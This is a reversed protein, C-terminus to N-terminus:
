TVSTLRRSCVSARWSAPCFRLTYMIALAPRPSPFLVTQASRAIMAALIKWRRVRTISPSMVRGVHNGHHLREHHGLVDIGDEDDRHRPLRGEHEDAAHTLEDLRDERFDGPHDQVVRHLTKRVVVVVTVVTIPLLRKRLPDSRGRARGTRASRVRATM